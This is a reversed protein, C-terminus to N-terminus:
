HVLLVIYYLPVFMRFYFILSVFIIRSKCGNVKHVRLDEDIAENQIDMKITADNFM